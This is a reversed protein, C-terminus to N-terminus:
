RQKNDGGGGRESKVVHIQFINTAYIYTFNNEPNLTM